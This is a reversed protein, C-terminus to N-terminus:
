NMLQASKPVDMPEQNGADGVKSAEAYLEGTEENEPEGDHSDREADREQADTSARRTGLITRTTERPTVRPIPSAKESSLNHGGPRCGEIEHQPPMPMLVIPAM